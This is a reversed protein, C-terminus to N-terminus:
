MISCMDEDTECCAREKFKAGGNGLLGDGESGRRRANVDGYTPSMCKWMSLPPMKPSTPSNPITQLASIMVENKLETAWDIATQGNMDAILPDASYDMLLRAVGPGNNDRRQACIILPTYDYAGKKVNIIDLLRTPGHQKRACLRLMQDRSGHDAIEFLERTDSEAIPKPKSRVGRTEEEEEFTVVRPKGEKRLVDDNTWPGNFQQQHQHRKVKTQQGALTAAANSTSSSSGRQEEMNIMMKRLGANSNQLSPASHFLKEHTPMPSTTNRREMFHSPPPPMASSFVSRNGSQTSM